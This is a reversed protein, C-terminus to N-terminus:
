HHHMKPQVSRAGDALLYSLGGVDSGVVNAGAVMAELAVLGSGEHHSPLTFVDTAAMWLALEKTLQNKLHIDKIGKERIVQYVADMFNMVTCRNHIFCENSERKVLQYAYNLVGKAKIVNGAFLIM